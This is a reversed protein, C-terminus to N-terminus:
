VMTLLLGGLSEVCSDQSLGHGAASLSHGCCEPCSCNGIMVLDTLTLCLTPCKINHKRKM